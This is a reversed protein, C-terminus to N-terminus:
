PRLFESFEYLIRLIERQESFKLEKIQNDLEVV